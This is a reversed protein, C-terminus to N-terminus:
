TWRSKAAHSRSCYKAMGRLHEAYRPQWRKGCGPLACTVWMGEYTSFEAPTKTFKRRNCGLCCRVINNLTNDGGRDFPIKHDWTGDMISLDTECYFCRGPMIALMEATVVGPVGKNRAKLNFAAAVRQLRRRPSTDPM